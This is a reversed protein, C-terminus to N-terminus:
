QAEIEIKHTLFDNIINIVEEPNPQFFIHGANDLMVVKANPIRKGLVEANEPNNIVDEKGHM